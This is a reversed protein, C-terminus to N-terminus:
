CPLKFNIIKDKCFFNLYDANIKSIGGYNDQISFIEDDMLIIIKNKSM